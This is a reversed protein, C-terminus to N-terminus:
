HPAGPLYNGGEFKAYSVVAPQAFSSVAAKLEEFSLVGDSNKDSQYLYSIIYKRDEPLLGGPISQVLKAM